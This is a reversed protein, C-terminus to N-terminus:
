DFAYSNSEPLLLYYYGREESESGLELKPREQWSMEPADAAFSSRRSSSGCCANYMSMMVLGDVIGGLGGVGSKEM